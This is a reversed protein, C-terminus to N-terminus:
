DGLGLGHIIGFVLNVAARHELGGQSGSGATDEADAGGGGGTGIMREFDGALENTGNIARDDRAPLVRAGDKLGARRQTLAGDRSFVFALRDTFNEV